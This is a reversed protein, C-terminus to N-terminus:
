FGDSTCTTRSDTWEQRLADSDQRGDLWASYADRDMFVLGAVYGDEALKTQTRLMVYNHATFPMPRTAPMYRWFESNSGFCLLNSVRESEDILQIDAALDNAMREFHSDLDRLLDVAKEPVETRGSEWRDVTPLPVGLETAVTKKTIGIKERFTKFEKGTMASDKQQIPLYRTARDRGHVREMMDCFVARALISAEKEEGQLVPDGQTCQHIRIPIFDADSSMM